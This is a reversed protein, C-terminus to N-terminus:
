QAVKMIANMVTSLSVQEYDSPIETRNSWNTSEQVKNLEFTAKFSSANDGKLTLEMEQPLKGDSLQMWNVYAWNVYANNKNEAKGWFINQLYNFDVGAAKLQPIENYTARCYRKNMKDLLLIYDKTLELTGVNVTVIFVSYTIDIQVVDDRLLRCSGGCNIGKGAAELRLKLKSTIGPVNTIKEGLGSVVTGSVNEEKEKTAHRSSRCGELAVVFTLLLLLKYYHKM